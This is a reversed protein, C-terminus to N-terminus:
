KHKSRITLGGGQSRRLIRQNYRKILIRLLFFGGILLVIIIAILRYPIVWFDISSSVEKRSDGYTIHLDATYRGFLMKDGLTASDLTQDFKRISNPLINRPPLNINVTAVKQGFMDKITIQGAPQLHTNGTNKLREIFQVPTSEFLSTAKGGNAASFEEVVLGEKAEGSVRVFLLSGLSASLSVGTGKLEPPTATFRVVGFYGGPAANSPVKITVSMDKIQKPKLIVEPLPSVWSKLSYPADADNEADLLIKPTGDEGAATFNNVQGTVLLTESSVGRLSIKTTITQGPDTKLNIVPPAIELAQGTANTPTDAAHVALAVFLLASLSITAALYTTFKKM